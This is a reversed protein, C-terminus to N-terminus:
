QQYIKDISISVSVLLYSLCVVTTDRNNKKEKNSSSSINLTPSFNRQVGNM